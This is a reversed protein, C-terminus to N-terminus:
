TDYPDWEDSLARSSYHTSGYGRFSDDSDDSDDYTGFEGSSLGRDINCGDLYVNQALYEALQSVVENVEDTYSGNSPEFDIGESFEADALIDNEVAVLEIIIDNDTARFRLKCNIVEDFDSYRIPVDPSFILVRCEEGSISDYEDTDISFPLAQRVTVFSDGDCKTIALKKDLANFVYTCKKRIINAKASLSENKNTTNDSTKRLASLLTAYASNLETDSIVPLESTFSYKSLTKGSSDVLALDVKNLGIQAKLALSPYASINNVHVSLASNGNTETNAVSTVKGGSASELVLMKHKLVYGRDSANKGNDRGSLCALRSEFINSVKMIAKKGDVTRCDLNEIKSVSLSLDLRDVADLQVLSISFGPSRSLLNPRKTTDGMAVICVKLGFKYGQITFLTQVGSDYDVVILRDNFINLTALKLVNSNSSLGGFKSILSQVCNRVIITYSDTIRAYEKLSFVYSKIVGVLSKIHEETNLNIARTAFTVAEFEENYLRSEIRDLSSSKCMFVRSKIEGNGGTVQIESEFIGYVTIGADVTLKVGTNFRAVCSYEDPTHGERNFYSVASGQKIESAVRSTFYKFLGEATLNKGQSVRKKVANIYEQVYKSVEDRVSLSAPSDNISHKVRAVCSNDKKDQAIFEIAGVKKTFDYEGTVLLDLQTNNGNVTGAYLSLKSILGSADRETNLVKVNSTNLSLKSVVDKCARLTCLQLEETNKLVLNGESTLQLNRLKIQLNNPNMLTILTDKDYYVPKVTGDIRIDYGYPINKTTYIKVVQGTLM